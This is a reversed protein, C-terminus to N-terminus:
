GAVAHPVFASKGSIISGRTERICIGVPQDRVMWVGIQPLYGDYRPSEVFAQYVKPEEGYEGALYEVVAGDRHVAVNHGEHGFLPKSVFTSGLPEPSTGCALISPHDPFMESLICLIAKSGLVLRWPPEIFLCGSAAVKKAFPERLMWEWPYLKFCHTIPAGDHDVFKRDRSNWGIRHMAMLTVEIRAKRMLEAMYRVTGEVEAHRPRWACHVHQFGSSQWAALLSEELTNFQQHHPMVQALWHKQIVATEVLTLATEANYELVKPCGQADLLFDFRGHLSWERREWSAALLEAEDPRVGLLWWLNKKVVYEAAQHYLGALECAAQCWRQVEAGTLIYVAHENWSEQGQESHWLLGTREVRSKWDPRAAVPVRNM